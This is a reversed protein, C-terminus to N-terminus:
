RKEREDAVASEVFEPAAGECVSGGGGFANGSVGACRNVEISGRFVRWSVHVLFM